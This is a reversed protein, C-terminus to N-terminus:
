KLCLLLVMGNPFNSMGLLKCASVSDTAKSELEKERRKTITHENRIELAARDRGM